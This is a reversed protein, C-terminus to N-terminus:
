NAREVAYIGAPESVIEKTTNYAFASSSVGILVIYFIVYKLLGNM